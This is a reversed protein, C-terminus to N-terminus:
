APTVTFHYTAPPTRNDSVSATGAKASPPVQVTVKFGLDAGAPTVTGLNHTAGDPLTLTLHVPPLPSVQATAHNTDNCTNTYWHGFFTLSDGPSVKAAPAGHTGNPRQDDIYPAVCSANEGSTTIACAGLLPLLAITM